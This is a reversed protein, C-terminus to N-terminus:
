LGQADLLMEGINQVVRNSAEFFVLFIILTAGRCKLEEFSHLTVQSTYAIVAVRGHKRTDIAWALVCLSKRASTTDEAVGKNDVVFNLQSIELNRGVFPELRDGAVVVIFCQYWALSQYHTGIVM